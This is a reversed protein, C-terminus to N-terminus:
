RGVGRQTRTKEATLEHDGRSAPKKRPLWIATGGEINFWRKPAVERYEARISGNEHSATERNMCEEGNEHCDHRVPEYTKVFAVSLSSPRCLVVMICGLIALTLTDFGKDVSIEKKFVTVIISYRARDNYCGMFAVAASLFCVIALIGLVNRIM